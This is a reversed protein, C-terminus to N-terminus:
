EGDHFLGDQAQEALILSTHTHKYHQLAIISPLMEGCIM